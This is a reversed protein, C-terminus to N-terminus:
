VPVVKLPIGLTEILKERVGSITVSAMQCGVCAGSLKVQVTDGNYDGLAAHWTNFGTPYVTPPDFSGDGRGRFTNLAGPFRERATKEGPIAPIALYDRLFDAYVKHMLKTEIMAEEATEHATHGEQWLFESTRLFMRTRMEWRVVNAWQNTLLPLDRWSQVWRAMAAGIVEM